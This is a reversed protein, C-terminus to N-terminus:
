EEEISDYNKFFDVVIDMEEFNQLYPIHIFVVRTNLKKERILRMMQYYAFNCYSNGPSCSLKYAINHEKLSAQLINLDFNTQYVNEDITAQMEISLKKLLPKQGFMIITDWYNDLIMSVEKQIVDFDNTFLFHNKGDLREILQLSCSVDHENAKKFGTYLVKSRKM